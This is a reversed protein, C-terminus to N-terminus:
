PVSPEVRSLLSGVVDSPIRFSMSVQAGVGSLQLSDLMAQLEPMSAAQMKALAVFGRLVDRLNQGAEEDRAEATITGSIGGNIRGGAAFGVISPIQQSVQDPLWQRLSPDDFQGVAWVNSGSDVQQLLQMLDQNTTINDGTARLDIARMVSPVDGLAVLGSDLLAAVPRHQDPQGGTDPPSLLRRGNYEEVSGGRRRTFDELQTESFRGRFLVFAGPGGERPLVCAVIHDIDTELNIGTEDQFSQRAQEDPSIERLRQRFESLMVERVNAYAVLVADSPVHELEDPSTNAMSLGPRVSSYYAVLGTCLGVVLIGSAGLFFYRTQRTM